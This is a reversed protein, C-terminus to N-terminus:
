KSGVQQDKVVKMFYRSANESSTVTVTLEPGLKNM